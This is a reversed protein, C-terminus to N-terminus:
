VLAPRSPHAARYDAWPGPVVALDPEPESEDDLAVSMQVRVLWGQPLAARLADGAAGLTSAHDPEQPEAVVLQGGLLEVPERHLMGLNVLRAYEARTWRRLTLPTQRMPTVTHRPGAEALAALGICALRPGSCQAPSRSSACQRGFSGVMMVIRRAKTLARTIRATARAEPAVAAGGLSAMTMPRRASGTVISGGCIVSRLEARIVFRMKSPRTACSTPEYLSTGPRAWDQSM